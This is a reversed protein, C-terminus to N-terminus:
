LHVCIKKIKIPCIAEFETDRRRQPLLKIACITQPQCPRAATKTQGAFHYRRLVDPFQQIFFRKMREPQMQRVPRRV